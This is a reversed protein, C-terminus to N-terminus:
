LVYFLNSTSFVSKSDGSHFHHILEVSPTEPTSLFSFLATVLTEPLKHHFPSCSSFKPFHISKNLPALPSPWILIIGTLISCLWLSMSPPHQTQPSQKRLSTVLALIQLQLQSRLWTQTWSERKMILVNEYPSCYSAWRRKILEQWSQSQCHSSVFWFYALSRARYDISVVQRNESSLVTLSCVNTEM